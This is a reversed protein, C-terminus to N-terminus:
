CVPFDQTGKRLGVRLQVSQHDTSDVFSTPYGLDFLDVLPLWPNPFASLEPDLSWVESAAVTMIIPERVVANVFKAENFLADLVRDYEPSDHAPTQVYGHAESPSLGKTDMIIKLIPRIRVIHCDILARAEPTVEPRERWRIRNIREVLKGTTDM